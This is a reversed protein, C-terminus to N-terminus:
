AVASLRRGRWPLISRSRGGGSIRPRALAPDGRRTGPTCYPCVVALKKFCKLRREEHRDAELWVRAVAFAIGEAHMVEPLRAGNTGNAHAV